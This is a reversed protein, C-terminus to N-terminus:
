GSSSCAEEVLARFVTASLRSFGPDSHLESNYADDVIARALMQTEPAGSVYIVDLLDAKSGGAQRFLMAEEALAGLSLCNGDARYPSHEGSDEGALRADRGGHSRAAGNLGEKPYVIALVIWLVACVAPKVIKGELRYKSRISQAHGRFSDRLKSDDINTMM